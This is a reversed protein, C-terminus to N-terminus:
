RRSFPLLVDPSAVWVALYPQTAKSKWMTLLFPKDFVFARPKSSRPPEEPAGFTASAYSTSSVSAGTEDMRFKVDQYVIDMLVDEFGKNLLFRNCLQQFDESVSLDVIPIALVDGNSLSNLYVERRGNVVREMSRPCGAEVAKFVTEVGASLTDPKQIKALVIFEDPIRSSLLLIFEDEGAYQLITVNGFKAASTNPAGFFTVDATKAGYIFPLPATTGRVFKRSFPLRRRLFAYSVIAKKSAVLMDPLAPAQNGFKHKLAERIKEAIGQDTFGAMAVCAAEAVVGTPCGGQNLQNVIPQSDRGDLEIPGGVIQKLEDWAIQITPCYVVSDTGILEADLSPVLRPKAHCMCTFALFALVMPAFKPWARSKGEPTGPDPLPTAIIAARCAALPRRAPWIHPTSIYGHRVNKEHVSDLSPQKLPFAHEILRLSPESNM